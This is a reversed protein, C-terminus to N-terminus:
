VSRYPEILGPSRPPTKTGPDIGVIGNSQILRLNGCVSVNLGGCDGSTLCVSILFSQDVLRQVSNLVTGPLPHGRSLVRMKHLQTKAM